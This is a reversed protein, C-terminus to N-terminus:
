SKLAPLFAPNMSAFMDVTRHEDNNPKKAQRSRQLADCRKPDPRM